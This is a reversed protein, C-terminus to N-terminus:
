LLGAGAPHTAEDLVLVATGPRAHRMRHGAFEILRLLILLIAAAILVVLLIRTRALEKQRSRMSRSKGRVSLPSGWFLWVLGAQRPATKYRRDRSEFPAYFLEMFRGVTNASANAM